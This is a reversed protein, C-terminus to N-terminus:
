VLINAAAPNILAKLTRGALCYSATLRIDPQRGRSRLMIGYQLAIASKM